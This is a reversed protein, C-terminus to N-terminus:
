VAKFFLTMRCLGARVPQSEGIRCDLHLHLDGDAAPMKGAIAADEIAFESFPLASFSFSSGAIIQLKRGDAGSFEVRRVESRCGAARPDAYAPYMEDLDITYESFVAARSGPYNEFPGKGLFTIQKMAGPLRLMVGLRPIGAFCEPVVFEADYRISGDNQPTFRQTFELEDMEMKKPLALAHCEVSKGDSVFRDTSIRIRDLALDKLEDPVMGVRWLAIRPGSLLLKEGNYRLERMGNADIVASLKGSSIIAQSVDFRVGTFFQEKGVPPMLYAPPPLPFSEGAVPQNKEDYFRIILIACQGYYLDPVEVSLLYERKEGAALDNLLFQGFSARKGDVELQWKGMVRGLKERCTVAIRGTLEDLLEVTFPQAAYFKEADAACIRHDMM